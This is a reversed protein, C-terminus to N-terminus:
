SLEYYQVTLSDDIPNPMKKFHKGTLVEVLGLLAGVTYDCCRYNWPSSSIAATLIHEGPNKVLEKIADWHVESIETFFVVLNRLDTLPDGLQVTLVLKVEKFNPIAFVTEM